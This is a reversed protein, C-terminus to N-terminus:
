LCVKLRQALSTKRTTVISKCFAVGELELKGRTLPRFLGFRVGEPLDQPASKALYLPLRGLTLVGCVTQTRHPLVLHVPGLPHISM